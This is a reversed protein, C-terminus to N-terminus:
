SSVARCTSCLTVRQRVQWRCRAHWALGPLPGWFVFLTRLRGNRCHDPARWVVSSCAGATVAVERARGSTTIHPSTWLLGHTVPQKSVHRDSGGAPRNPEAAAAAAAALAAAAPPYGGPRCSIADGDSDNGDDIGLRHCRLEWIAASVASCVDGLAPSQGACLPTRNADPRGGCCGAVLSGAGLTSGGGM